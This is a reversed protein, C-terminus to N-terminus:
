VRLEFDLSSDTSGRPASGFPCGRASSRIEVADVRSDPALRSEIERLTAGTAEAEASIEPLPLVQPEPAGTAEQQPTGASQALGAPPAALGLM